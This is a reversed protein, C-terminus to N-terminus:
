SAGTHNVFDHMSGKLARDSGASDTSLRRGTKGAIAAAKQGTQV